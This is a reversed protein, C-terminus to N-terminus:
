LLTKNIIKWYGSKDEGVRRIINKKKLTAINKDIATASIGIHESMDKKSINPNKLILDVIKKQSDVLGEVLGEVLGGHFDPHILLETIFFSREPENTDFIPADSGNKSLVRLITPLGTGRGETLNLEKLFEGIRRNRYRRAKVVGRDFDIQKLSPDVGNYSIIEITDPLVRVEIPDRLEYNRHYVANALSEELAEYPYNFVTDSEARDEYKIVKSKIINVKLYSLADTLQKQITGKFTKENFEKAGLGNPFEVVDIQVGNFFKDPNESFMLLGVNKPFLHEKAGQSLNMKDALEEVSMSASEQYLKSKTKSLHERMLAFSLEDIN